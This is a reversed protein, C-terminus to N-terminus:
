YEQYAVSAAASVGKGFVRATGPFFAENNAGPTFGGLLLVADSASTGVVIDTGAGSTVRVRVGLRRSANIPRIITGGTTVTETGFTTRGGHRIVGPTSGLDSM